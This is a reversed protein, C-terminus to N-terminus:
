KKENFIKILNKIGLPPIKEKNYINIFGKDLVHKGNGKGSKRKKTDL